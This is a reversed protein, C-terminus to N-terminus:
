VENREFLKLMAMLDATNFRSWGKGTESIKQLIAREYTCPSTAFARDAEDEHATLGILNSDLLYNWIAAVVWSNVEDYDGWDTNEFINITTQVKIDYLEARLEQNQKRLEDYAEPLNRLEAADFLQGGFAKQYSVANTKSKTTFLDDSTIVIFFSNYLM